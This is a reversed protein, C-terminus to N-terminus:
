AAGNAWEVLEVLSANQLEVPIPRLTSWIVDRAMTPTMRPHEDFSVPKREGSPSQQFAFWNM